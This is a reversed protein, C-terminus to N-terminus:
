RPLRDATRTSPRLALIEALFDAHHVRAAVIRVRRHRSPTASARAAAACPDAPRCHHEDELGGLFARRRALFAARRQHDLFAQEVFEFRVRHEAHVDNAPMGAPVTANRAPPSIALESVNWM